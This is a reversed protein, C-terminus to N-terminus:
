HKKTLFIPLLAPFFFHYSLCSSHPLISAVKLLGVIDYVWGFVGCYAFKHLPPVIGILVIECQQVYMFM